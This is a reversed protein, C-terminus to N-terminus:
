SVYLVIKYKFHRIVYDIKQIQWLLHTIAPTNQSPYGQSQKKQKRTVFILPNHLIMELTHFCKIYSIHQKIDQKLKHWKVTQFKWRVLNSMCQASLPKLDLTGKSNNIERRLVVKCTCVNYIHRHIYIYQSHVTLGTLPQSLSWLICGDETM